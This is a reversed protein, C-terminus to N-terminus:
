DFGIFKKFYFFQRLRIKETKIQIIFASAVKGLNRHIELIKNIPKSCIAYLKKGIRESTWAM